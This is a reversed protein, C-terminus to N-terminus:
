GGCAFAASIQNWFIWVDTTCLITVYPKPQPMLDSAFQFATPDVVKHIAKEVFDFPLDAITAPGPHHQRCHLAHLPLVGM